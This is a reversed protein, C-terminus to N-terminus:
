ELLHGIRDGSVVRQALARAVEIAQALVHPQPVVPAPVPVPIRGEHTDIILGLSFDIRGPQARGGVGDGDRRKDHAAHLRIDDAVGPHGVHQSKIGLACATSTAAAPCM